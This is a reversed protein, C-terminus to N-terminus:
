RMVMLMMKMVILTRFNEKNKAKCKWTMPQVNGDIFYLVGPTSGEVLETGPLHCFSVCHPSQGWNWSWLGDNRIWRPEKIEFTTLKALRLQGTRRFWGRGLQSNVLLCWWMTSEGAELFRTPLTSTQGVTWRTWKPVFVAVNNDGCISLVLPNPHEEHQNHRWLMTM